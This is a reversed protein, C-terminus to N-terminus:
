KVNATTNFICSFNRCCSSNQEHTPQADIIEIKEFSDSDYDDDITNATVWEDIFRENNHLERLLTRLLKTHSNTEVWRRIPKKFVDNITRDKNMILIKKSDAHKKLKHAYIFDYSSESMPLKQEYQALLILEYAVRYNAKLLSLLLTDIETSVYSHLESSKAANVQMSTFGVLVLLLSFYGYKM